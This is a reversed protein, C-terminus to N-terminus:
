EGDYTFKKEEGERERGKEFILSYKRNIQNMCSANLLLHICMFKIIKNRLYIIIWRKQRAINWQIDIQKQTEDRSTSSSIVDLWWKVNQKKEKRRVFWDSWAKWTNKTEIWKWYETAMRILVSQQWNKEGVTLSCNSWFKEQPLDMQQDQINWNGLSSGENKRRKKWISKRVVIIIIYNLSDM